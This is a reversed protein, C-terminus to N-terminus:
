NSEKVAVIMKSGHQLIMRKRPKLKQVDGDDDEQEDEYVMKVKASKM